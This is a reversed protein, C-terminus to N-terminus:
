SYTEGAKGLHVDVIGSKIDGKTFVFQIQQDEPLFKNLVKAADQIYAETIDAM